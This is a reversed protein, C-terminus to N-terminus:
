LCVKPREIPIAPNSIDTMPQRTVSNKAKKMKENIDRVNAEDYVDIVVSWHMGHIYVHVCVSEVAYM